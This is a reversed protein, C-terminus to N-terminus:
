EDKWVGQSDYRGAKKWEEVLRLWKKAETDNSLRIKNKIHLPCHPNLAFDSLPITSDSQYLSLIVKESVAPNQVLASRVSMKDKKLADVLESDISPNSALAQRIYWDNDKQLQKMLDKPLYRNIAILAKVSRRKTLAFVHFQKDSLKQKHLIKYITEPPVNQSVLYEEANKEVFAPGMPAKLDCGTICFVSLLLLITVM